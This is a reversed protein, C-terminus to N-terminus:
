YVTYQELEEDLPTSERIIANNPIRDKFESPVDGQCWLNNCVYKRGDFFEIYFKRGAHGMGSWGPTVQKSETMHYRTGDVIPTYDDALAIKEEWFHVTHCKKSCIYSPEKLQNTSIYKAGNPMEKNCISCKM